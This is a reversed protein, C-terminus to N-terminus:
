RVGAVAPGERAISRWWTDAVAPVDDLDLLQGPKPIVVRVDHAAAEATLREM